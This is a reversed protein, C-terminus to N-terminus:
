ENYAQIADAPNVTKTGVATENDGSSPLPIDVVGKVKKGQAALIMNNFGPPAQPCPRRKGKPLKSQEIDWRKVCTKLHIELSKTGYERGCIYCVLTKPRQMMKNPKKDIFALDM